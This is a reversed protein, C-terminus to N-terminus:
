AALPMNEYLELDTDDNEIELLLQWTRPTKKSKNIRATKEVGVVMLEVTKVMLEKNESALAVEFAPLYKRILRSAKEMSRDAFKWCSVQLLKHQALAGILKAYLECLIRWVNQSRSEGIKLDKKWLRFLLEIQWRVRYLSLTKAPTLFTGRISTVFLTWGCLALRKASVTQGKRKARYLLRRRRESEVEEPVRLAMLRAKHKEKKGLLVPLDLSSGRQRPLFDILDIRQGSEDYVHVNIMLRSLWFTGDKEYQQFNKLSFYGLDNIVLSNGPFPGKHLSDSRDHRKGDSLQPGILEGYRYELGVHLKLAANAGKTGGCGQWLKALEPPLLITSSDFLYIQEFSSLFDLTTPVHRLKQRVISELVQRLFLAASETFRKDLTQPALSSGAIAVSSALEKLTADPNEAWAFVLGRVFSLATLKRNRKIFGTMKAIEPINDTLLTHIQECVCAINENTM